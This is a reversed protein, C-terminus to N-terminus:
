FSVRFKTVEAPLLEFKCMSGVALNNDAVFKNWGHIIKVNDNQIKVYVNWSHDGVLLNVSQIKNHDAIHTKWWIEPLCMIRDLQSALLIITFSPLTPVEEVRRVPCGTDDDDTSESESFEEYYSKDKRKPNYEWDPFDNTQVFIDTSPMCGSANFRMVKFEGEGHYSFVVVHKMGLSNASVFANWNQDFYSERGDRTVGVVWELGNLMQLRCLNPLSGGHECMWEYPIVKM